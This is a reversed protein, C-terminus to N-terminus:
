IDLEIPGEDEVPGTLIVHNDSKRWEVSLDGGDAHIMAQRDCLCDYLVM